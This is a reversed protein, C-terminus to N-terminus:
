LVLMTRLRLHCVFLIIVITFIDEFEINDKKVVLAPRLPFYHHTTRWSSKYRLTKCKGQLSLNWHWTDYSEGGFFNPNIMM